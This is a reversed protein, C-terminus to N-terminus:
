VVTGRNRMRSLLFATFADSMERISGVRDFAPPPPYGPAVNPMYAEDRSPCVMNNSPFPQQNNDTVRNGMVADSFTNFSNSPRRPINNPHYVDTSRPLNQAVPEERHKTFTNVLFSRLVEAGRHNLHIGDQKVMGSVSPTIHRKVRPNATKIAQDMMQVFSHSVGPLGSFPLIFNIVAQPFIRQTETFLDALHTEWDARSHDSRHNFDNIGLSYIIKKFKPYNFKFKRLAHATSVVCLGSVSRIAVSRNTPDIEGQRVYHFNSGGIMLTSRYYPVNQLSRLVYSLKNAPEACRPHLPALEKIGPMNSSSSDSPTSLVESKGGGLDQNNTMSSQESDQNNPLSSQQSDNAPEDVSLNLCLAGASPTQSPKFLPSGDNPQSVSNIPSRQAPTIMPSDQSYTIHSEKVQHSLRRENLLANNIDKERWLDLKIAEIELKADDLRSNADNLKSKM